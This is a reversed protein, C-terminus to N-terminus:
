SGLKRYCSNFFVSILLRYTPASNKEHIMHQSPCFRKHSDSRMKKLWLVSGLLKRCSRSTCDALVTKFNVNLLYVSFCFRISIKKAYVILFAKWYPLELHIALFSLNRKIMGDSALFNLISRPEQNHRNQISCFYYRFLKSSFM